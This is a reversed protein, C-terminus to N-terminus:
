NLMSHSCLRMFYTVNNEEGFLNSETIGLFRGKETTISVSAPRVLYAKVSGSHSVNVELSGDMSGISSYVYSLKYDVRFGKCHSFGYSVRNKNIDCSIDLRKKKKEKCCIHM